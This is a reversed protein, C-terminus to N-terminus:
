KQLKKIAAELYLSLDMAEQQAETLWNILNYDDRDLTKGYKKLGVRSRESYKAMVAMLVSDENQIPENEHTINM